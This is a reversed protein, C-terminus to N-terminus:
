KRKQLHVLRKSRSVVRYGVVGTLGDFLQDEVADTKRGKAFVFWINDYAAIERQMKELNSDTSVVCVDTEASLEYILTAPDGRGHGAGIVVLPPPSSAEITAAMSRITSGAYGPTRELDFNIGTLQLGVFFPVVVVFTRTPPLMRGWSGDGETSRFGGALTLLFVIGPGAFLVYSSKGLDKNFFLDLALIGVSPAAALGIMLISIRKGIEERKTLAYWISVTVLMLVAIHFAFRVGSSVHVPNWLMAFNFDYIKRIEDGFGLAKQFQKPRAGLQAPLIWLIASTLLILTASIPISHLRRGRPMSFVFWILIFSIPFISLYNTNIALGGSIAMTLSLLWFIKTQSDKLIPISFASFSAVLILFMALSYNRAEHGYHVAGSSLSYVLAPVFPHALGAFRWFLFLLVVSATSVLVSFLRAAEISRGAVQRWKSLLAYYVPPHVDTDRLGAAIEGLTPAGILLEKQTSAPTPSESWAPAPHGATELLTIAEDYWIARSHVGPIRVALSILILTFIAWLDRRQLLAPASNNL